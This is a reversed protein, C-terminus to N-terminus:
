YMLTNITILEATSINEYLFVKGFVKSNKQNSFKKLFIKRNRLRELQYNKKNKEHYLHYAMLNVDEPNLHKIYDLIMTARFGRALCPRYYSEDYLDIANIDLRGLKILVRLMFDFDEYGHGKYQEDFGNVNTALTKTIFMVSSPVAIHQYLSKKIPFNIRDTSFKRTGLKNLYLCPFSVYNDREVYSIGKNLLSKNIVLDADCFMIIDTKTNQIGFNRLKSNNNEKTNVKCFLVNTMGLLRFLISIIVKTTYKRYACVTLLNVGEACSFKELKKIRYLLSFIRKTRLDLPTIITIDETNM